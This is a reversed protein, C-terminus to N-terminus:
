LTVNWQLLQPNLVQQGARDKVGSTNVRATGPPWAGIPTFQAADGNTGVVAWSGGMTGVVNFINTYTPLSLDQINIPGDFQVFIQTAGSFTPTIPFSFLQTVRPTVFLNVIDPNTVPIGATSVAGSYSVIISTNVPLPNTNRFIAINQMSSWTGPVPTGNITPLPLSAANIDRNFGLTITGNAEPGIHGAFPISGIFRDDAPTSDLFLFQDRVTFTAFGPNIVTQGATAVNTWVMTVSGLPSWPSGPTFTVTPGTGSWSGNKVIGNETVTPLVVLGGSSFTASIPQSGSLEFGSPSPSHSIFLLNDFNIIITPGFSNPAGNAGLVDVTAVQFPESQDQWNASPVFTAVNGSLTWTGLVTNGGGDVVTPLTSMDPPSDFTLIVSENDYLTGDAEGTEFNLLTFTALSFRHILDGNADVGTLPDGNDTALVGNFTFVYAPTTDSVAPWAADPTFWAENGFFAWSGSIPAGNDSRTVVTNVVTTPLVPRNFQVALRERTGVIATNAVGSQVSMSIFTLPKPVIITGDQQISVVQPNILPIGAGNIHSSLDLSYPGVNAQWNTFPTFRFGTATPSWTGGIVLGWAGYWSPLTAGFDNASELFNVDVYQLDFVTGDNDQTVVSDFAFVGPPYDASILITQPAAIMVGNAGTVGTTSVSYPSPLTQWNVLPTFTASVGAV